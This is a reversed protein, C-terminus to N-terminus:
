PIRDRLPGTFQGCDPRQDDCEARRQRYM